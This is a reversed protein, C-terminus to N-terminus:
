KEKEVNELKKLISELQSVKKRKEEVKQKISERKQYNPEKAEELKKIEEIHGKIDSILISKLQPCMKMLGTIDTGKSELIKMIDKTEQAKQLEPCIRYLVVAKNIAVRLQIEAESELCKNQKALEEIFTKQDMGEKICKEIYDKAIDLSPHMKGDLMKGESDTGLINLKLPKARGDAGKIFKKDGNEDRYEKYFKEEIGASGISSINGPIEDTIFGYENTRRPLKYYDIMSFGYIDYASKTISNIGERNFRYRNVKGKEPIANPVKETLIEIHKKRMEFTDYYEKTKGDGDVRTGTERHIGAKNFGNVDYGNVDYGEQDYKEDDISLYEDPGDKKPKKYFGSKTTKTDYTYRGGSVINIIPNKRGSLFYNVDIQIEKGNYDEITAYLTGKREYTGDPLKKHYYGERDFGGEEIVEGTNSPLELDRIGYINYGDLDLDTGTLINTGDAMFGNENHIRKKTGKYRGEDNFGNRYYGDDDKGTEPNFKGEEHGDIDIGYENYLTGTYVNYGIFKDNAGGLIFGNEDIFRYKINKKDFESAGEKSTVDIVGYKFLMEPSYEAFIAKGEWFATRAEKLRAGIYYEEKEDILKREVLEELIEDKHSLFPEQNLLKSLNMKSNIIDADFKHQYRELVGLVGFLRPVKDRIDEREPIRDKIRYYINVLNQQEPTLDFLDIRQSKDVTGNRNQIYYNNVLDFIVRDAKKEVGPIKASITRGQQQLFLIAQARLSTNDRESINRGMFAGSIGEIHVGENLKESSIIIKLPGSNTPASNFETLTEENEKDSYASSLYDFEMPVDSLGARKCAEKLMEEFERKQTELHKKTDIEENDKRSVFLIYKGNLNLKGDKIQEALIDITKDRKAAEQEEPSMKDYGPIGIVENNIIEIVARIERRLNLDLKEDKEYRLLDQYEKSDALGPNFRIVEPINVIGQKVADPLSLKIGLDARTEDSLDKETYGGMARAWAKTMDKGDVDREPTASITFVKTKGKTKQAEEDLVIEGDKITCGLLKATGKQFTEAGSRHVEDLIVLDPTRSDFDFSKSTLTQYCLFELGPFAKSVLENLKKTDVVIKGERDETLIEDEKGLIYKVIDIKIQTAIEKTPAVYCIKSSNIVGDSNVKVPINGNEDIEFDPNNIALIQAMALFSKGAGTPMVAGAVRHEEYIENINKTAEIQHPFLKM